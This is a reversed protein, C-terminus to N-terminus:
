PLSYDARPVPKLYPSRDSLTRQDPWPEVTDSRDGYRFGIGQACSVFKGSSTPLLCRKFTPLSRGSGVACSMSAATLVQLRVQPNLNSQLHHYTGGFRRYRGVLSCPTVAWFVAIRMKVAVFVGFRM